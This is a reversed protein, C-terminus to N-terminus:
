GDLAKGRRVSFARQKPVLWRVSEHRVEGLLVGHMNSQMIEQQNLGTSGQQIYGGTQSRAAKKKALSSKSSGLSFHVLRPRLQTTYRVSLPAACFGRRLAAVTSPQPRRPSEHHLLADLPPGDYCHPQLPHLWPGELRNALSPRSCRWPCCAGGGGRGVPLRRQAAPTRPM